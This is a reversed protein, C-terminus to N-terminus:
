KLKDFINQLKQRNEEPLLNYITNYMQEMKEKSLSGDSQKQKTQRILEQMLEDQSYSSYKDIAEQASHKLQEESPNRKIKVTEDEKKHIEQNCYDKFDM